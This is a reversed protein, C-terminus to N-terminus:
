ERKRGGGADVRGETVVILRDGAPVLPSTQTGSGDALPLLVASDGPAVRSRRDPL